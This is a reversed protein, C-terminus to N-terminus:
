DRLIPRFTLTAWFIHMETGYTTGNTHPILPCPPIELFHRMTSKPMFDNTVTCIFSANECRHQLPRTLIATHKLSRSIEKPLFRQVSFTVKLQPLSRFKSILGISRTVKRTITTNVTTFSSSTEWPQLDKSHILRFLVHITLGNVRTNTRNPRVLLPFGLFNPVACNTTFFILSINKQM